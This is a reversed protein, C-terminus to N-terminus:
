YVNGQADVAVSHPLNFEGPGTGYKGRVKSFKRRSRVECRSLKRILSVIVAIKAHELDPLGLKTKLRTQRDKTKRRMTLRRGVAPWLGCLEIWGELERSRLPLPTHLHGNPDFNLSETGRTGPSYAPLRHVNILFFNFLRNQCQEIQSGELVFKPQSGPLAVVPLYHIGQM